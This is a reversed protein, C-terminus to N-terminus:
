SEVGLATTLDLLKQLDFGSPCSKLLHAWLTESVLAYAEVCYTRRAALQVPVREQWTVVGLLDPSLEESLVAHRGWSGPAWSGSTSGAPSATWEDAGQWATPLEWGTWLGGFLETTAAVLDDDKPDVAVFAKLSQGALEDGSRLRQAVDLMVVGNDTSPDGPVYGGFKEYGALADADTALFPTGTQAAWTTMQGLMSAIVCNSLQDNLWMQYPVDVGAVMGWDRAAPRSPLTSLNLVDRAQVCRAVAGPDHPRRGLLGAIV